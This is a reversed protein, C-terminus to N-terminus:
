MERMAQQKHRLLPSLLYEIVHRSGTKIEVTVAMGPGLNVLRDDIQMQTKDMSVRASYVLEQGEPESTDAEDGAHHTDDPREQPKQRVIADQSVSQVHGHLLGYRTFNFTDIKIEADQGGHVFGIDKNSVMAEIELHSDAPVISMLIEAPTVVGGETHVSLQQVTGDVPATLTQLRYKQAAQLLQEHLSASKQEAEALDKLNTHKYEDEAQRRQQKHAEITGEAEALRGKQVQLEQQHEILDQEITLYDLKSGYGKDLLYKRADARKQLYPISDTLKTITSAVADRNGSNQAIQHDLDSLKARIEDVQNALLNKHLAAQTQTAGEPVVFSQVPDGDLNLAAKLRAADLMAQMYDNKLRDRESASVTTDIEILVDGTKVKQGDQVHIARVVGSELPQIVKTRGTPVIKGPATAIIDVSGLCAWLLAIAFFLIITGAIMRGAPLPPTEVIEIAAPLFDMEDTQGTVIRSHPLSRLWALFRTRTLAAM